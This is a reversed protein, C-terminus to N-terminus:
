PSLRKLDSPTAGIYQKRVINTSKNKGNYSHVLFLLYEPPEPPRKTPFSDFNRKKLRNLM